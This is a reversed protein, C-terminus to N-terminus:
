RFSQNTKLKKKKKKPSIHHTERGREEREREDIDLTNACLCGVTVSSNTSLFISEGNFQRQMKTLAPIYKHPEM